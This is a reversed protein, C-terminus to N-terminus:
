QLLYNKPTESVLLFVTGKPPEEFIKLLKNSTEVNMKEPMWILFVRYKAEFNKLLLKKHILIAEDKYIAGKQGKKNKIGFTDIWSSLSAYCNQLILKRWEEVFNDSVTRKEKTTKIVPFIM